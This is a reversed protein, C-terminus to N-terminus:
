RRRSTARRELVSDPYLRRAESELAFLALERFPRRGAGTWNWKSACATVLGADHLRQAMRFEFGARVYTVGRAAVRRLLRDHRRRRRGRLDHYRTV